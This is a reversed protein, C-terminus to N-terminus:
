EGRLADEFGERYTAFRYNGALLAETYLTRVARGVPPRGRWDGPIRMNLRDELWAFVEANPVPARDVANVLAPPNPASALAIVIRCLDIVHIRSVMRNGPDARSFDGDRVSLALCRGRGYIGGARVVILGPWFSRLQEELKLRARGREADPAAPTTEDVVELGQGPDKGRGSDGGGGPYVSTSSIHIIRPPPQGAMLLDDVLARYPHPAPRLGRADSLAPLTDLVCDFRLPWAADFPRLGAPGLSDKERSVFYVDHEHFERALTKGTYSAGLCLFRM